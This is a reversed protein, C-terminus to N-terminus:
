NVLQKNSCREILKAERLEGGVCNPFFRMTFGYLQTAPVCCIQLCRTFQHNVFCNLNRKVVHPAWNGKVWSDKALFQRYFSTRQKLCYHHLQIVTILERQTITRKKRSRTLFIHQIKEYQKFWFFLLSDRWKHTKLTFRVLRKNHTWKWKTANVCEYRGLSESVTIGNTQKFFTWNKKDGRLEGDWFNPSIEHHIWPTTHRPYVIYNPNRWMAHSIKKREAWRDTTLSPPHFFHTTELLLPTRFFIQDFM